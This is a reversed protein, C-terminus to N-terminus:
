LQASFGYTFVYLDKASFIYEANFVLRDIINLVPNDLKYEVGFLALPNTTNEKKNLSTNAGFGVDFAFGKIQHFQGAVGYDVLNYLKQSSDKFFQFGAFTKVRFDHTTKLIPTYRIGASHVKADFGSNHLGLVGFGEIRNLTTEFSFANLSFLTFITLKIILRATFM